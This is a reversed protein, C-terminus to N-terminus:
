SPTVSNEGKKKQQEKRKEDDTASASVITSSSTTIPPGFKALITSKYTFWDTPLVIMDDGHIDDNGGDGGGGVSNVDTRDATSPTDGSEGLMRQKDEDENEEKAKNRESGKRKSKAHEVARMVTAAFAEGNVPADIAFIPVKSGDIKVVLADPITPPPICSCCGGFSDPSQEYKVVRVDTIDCLDLTEEIYPIGADFLFTCECPYIQGVQQVSRWYSTVTLKLSKGRLELRHNTAGERAKEQETYASCPVCCLVCFPWWCPWYLYKSHTFGDCRLRALEEADQELAAVVQSDDAFFANLPNEGGGDATADKADQLMREAIAQHNLFQGFRFTGGAGGGGGGWGGANAYPDRYGPDWVNRTVTYSTDTGGYTVTNYSSYM